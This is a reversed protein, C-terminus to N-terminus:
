PIGYELHAEYIAQDKSKKDQGKFFEHLAPKTLYRQKRPIEKLKEKDRMLPNQKIYTFRCRKRARKM